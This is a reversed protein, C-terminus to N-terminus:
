ELQRRRALWSLARVGLSLCFSELQSTSWVALSRAFNAALQSRPLTDDFRGIVGSGAGGGDFFMFVWHSRVGPGSGVVGEVAWM